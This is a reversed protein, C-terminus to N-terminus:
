YLYMYLNHDIAVISMWTYILIQGPSRNVALPMRTPIVPFSQTADTNPHDPIISHCPMWTPIVPFSQIADMNPHGPIISHCPMRTPIVPFSQIADTNRHDPIISHYPM